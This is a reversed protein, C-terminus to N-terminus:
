KKLVDVNDYGDEDYLISNDNNNLFISESKSM